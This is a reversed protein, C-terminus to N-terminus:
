NIAAGLETDGLADVACKLENLSTAARIADLATAAMKKQQKSLANGSVFTEIKKVCVKKFLACVRAQFDLDSALAQQTRTYRRAVADPSSGLIPRKRAVYKAAQRISQGVKVKESVAILTSLDRAVNKWPRRPAGRRTPLLGVFGPVHRFALTLAIQRAADPDDPKVTCDAHLALWRERLAKEWEAAAHKANILGAPPRKFPVALVGKYRHSESKTM